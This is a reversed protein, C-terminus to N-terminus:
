GQTAKFAYVELKGQKLVRQAVGENMLYPIIRVYLDEPTLAGARGSHPAYKATIQSRTLYITKGPPQPPFNQQIMALLVEAKSVISARDALGELFRAGRMCEEVHSIAQILTGEQIALVNSSGIKAARACEFLMAIKLAQMPASSLRSLEAEQLRDTQDHTARNQNQFNEWVNAAEPSFDIEGNLNNLKCFLHYLVPTELAKPRVIVRGHSDAVYYLFRRALGARIQQGQFRAINFTAGLLISTCTEPVTRRTEPDTETKNRRYSESLPGCDYLSLFRTANREGNATKCWDTMIINADDVIWIKDPRGLHPEYFEDFLTEPSFCHPIFANAPLCKRALAHALEITSSKRDGARGALM